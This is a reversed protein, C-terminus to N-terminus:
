QVTPATLETFKKLVEYHFTGAKKYYFVVANKATLAKAKASGKDAILPVPTLQFLKEGTKLTLPLKKMGSSTDGNNNFIPVKEVSEIKVSYAVGNIWLQIPYIRLRSPTTLLLFYHSLDPAENKVIRGSADIDAMRKAGPSVSQHFGYLRELSGQAHLLFAAVFFALTLYLKKM